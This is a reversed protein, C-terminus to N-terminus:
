TDSATTGNSQNEIEALTYTSIHMAIFTSSYFLQHLALSPWPM